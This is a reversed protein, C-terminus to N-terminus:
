GLCVNGNGLKKAPDNNRISVKVMPMVCQEWPVNEPYRPGM